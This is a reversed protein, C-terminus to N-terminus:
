EDGDFGTSRFRIQLNFDHCGAGGIGLFENVRDEFCKRLALHQKDGEVVTVVRALHGNGEVIGDAAVITMAEIM